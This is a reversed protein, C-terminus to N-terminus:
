MELLEVKNSSPMSTFVFEKENEIMGLKKTSASEDGMDSHLKKDFFETKWAFTVLSCQRYTCIHNLRIIVDHKQKDFSCVTYFDLIIVKVKRPLPIKNHFCIKFTM